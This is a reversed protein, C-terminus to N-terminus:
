LLPFSPAAISDTTNYSTRCGKVDGNGPIIVNSSPVTVKLM